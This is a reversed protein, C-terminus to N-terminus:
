SFNVISSMPLCNLNFPNYIGFQEFAVISAIDSQSSFTWDAIKFFFELSYDINLEPKSNSGNDFSLYNKFNKIISDYQIAFQQLESTLIYVSKKTLEALKLISNEPLGNKINKLNKPDLCICDKLLESNNVIREEM